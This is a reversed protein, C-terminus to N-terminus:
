EQSQNVQQNLEWLQRLSECSQTLQRNTIKSCGSFDKYDIAFTLYCADRRGDASVKQCLSIDKSSEAIKSYCVDGIRPEIIKSCYNKDRQVEGINSICTDKLDPVDIKNCDQLAKSPNSKATEKIEDLTETSVLQTEAKQCDAACNGQEGEECISNGCCPIIPKNICAGNGQSDKTCPNNDNCDIQNQCPKCAGGCDVGDENQNKIGDFCTEKNAVQNSSSVIKIPLTAVAKKDDYEVIVRITYDGPTADKPVTMKTQTSGFTEIARTETKEAITKLTTKDIIEQKIVVDYSKSSGLNSLEKLFVIDEGAAVRTSVPELNLDLLKAQRNQSNFYFYSAVAISSIFIFLIIFITTRSLHIEHRITPHYVENVAEDIDKNTYGYKLMTNRIVSIDYGKLLLGRVYDIVSKKVM